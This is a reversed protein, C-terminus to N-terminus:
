KQTTMVVQDVAFGQAKAKELMAEIAKRNLQPNRALVWLYQRDPSGVLAISYDPEVHLVWYDGWVLPIWSLWSPAFRVELKAKSSLEVVRAEGIVEKVEGQENLCRNVVEISGSPLKRYNANVNAVCFDQFRNPLRAVEYWQGVYRDLDVKEVTKPALAASAGFSAAFVVKDSLVGLLGVCILLFAAM